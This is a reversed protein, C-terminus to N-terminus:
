VITLAKLYDAPGWNSSKGKTFYDALRLKRPTKGRFWYRETRLSGWNNESRLAEPRIM